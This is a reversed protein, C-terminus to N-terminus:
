SLWGPMPTNPEPTKIEPELNPEGILEYKAQEWDSKGADEPARGDIGALEVARERLRKRSVKGSNTPNPALAAETLLYTNVPGHNNGAALV